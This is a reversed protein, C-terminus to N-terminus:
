LGLVRGHGVPQGTTRRHDALPGGTTRRHDVAMSRRQGGNVATTSWRQSATAGTITPSCYRAM